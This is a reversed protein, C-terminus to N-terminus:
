RVSFRGVSPAWKWLRRWQPDFVGAKVQWTGPRGDRATFDTVYTRAVKARFRQARFPRQWTPKTAGPAYVQVAVLGRATQASTVRLRIRVRRASHKRVSGSVRLRPVSSRPPTARPPRGTAGPLAPGTFRGALRKFLGRDEDRGDGDVDCACTTTPLARGFLLGVVGARVYDAIRQGAGAGLLMEVRNDRYRHPRDPLSANGLPIQWLLVRLGSAASVGRLYRAHRTFDGATWWAAGGDGDVKERYGSDRDAYEAFLLDFRAGLSGLFATSRAALADIHADSPDSYSLDEGTGWNSLHWGLLVGPAYRDRLAVFAKAFGTADDPLGRLEDLGTAAVQAPVTAGDDDRAARQVYGWIDPELHLLATRGTAGARQFFVRVDEFYARMTDRDRLNALIGEEEGQGNGPATERLQYLSFVPFFGHDASDAIFAPVFSGGGLTWTQWGRGTNAGGSLYHYRIGLPAQERLRAANGEDDRMGLQLSTFPWTRPLAAGAPAAAPAALVTLVVLVPAIWRM